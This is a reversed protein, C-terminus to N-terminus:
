FNFICEQLNDVTYNVSILYFKNPLLIVLKDTEFKLQSSFVFHSFSHSSYFVLSNILLSIYAPYLIYIEIIFALTTYM